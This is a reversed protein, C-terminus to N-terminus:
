SQKPLGSLLDEVAKPDPPKVLHHNIGAEATRRRDEKQGWGTLAALVVKELGPQQRMRRAVEYGDMGPMGIDLFVLDPSYTRTMELAAMGSYVVRVEHGQLRLLMALSNAADENDDVVLLRHGTPSAPEHAQQGTERGRDQEVGQASIPLRVVFESGKGLGKSRAEVTGNHMEVLNKVLTLGIGLGGQAKTSAHDVQVFLEFIRPLMAPAIGIGDDRVQLVALDGNREATLWIRGGPETYKAANTLLNGVVQALRVPDADIPLSEPPLRVSLQHGQADVLPQLTEVARAVVTALEVREKRLEIKGRMVRSVDLLDDVLRVLHHVQREMMDRSREVTQADVRPMKLIQLSNRIPALPNRLEHALTALFEDKRRDTDRLAQYLQTNEIAISARHALDMALALDAETYRRGSEATAFTLVGLSNGSVVLPVCIYSKLGLSRILRLHREDRAEQVLMDDTIESVIEPKGTRLVAIAGGPAQPDPPYDRMLEHALNIKDADQHAVALRRLSGDDNVLDVASWDAFYPVALNAVKQLTSEYDVVGALAASAEALYRSSEEARKQEHIDTGTGFWRAVRGSGDQVAVTRILHWRYSQTRRELLRIEMEFPAGSRLSAAWRESAPQADDPHLIQDWGEKGVTERVGTFEHWRRNLYDINGDPRATWVIQPMADALQRFRQESDRLSEEMKKIESIDTNTGFWYLVRGEETRLPNVRTLFPRFKEDAGKLPFVMDFPQGSAISGKWQELVNPLVEPDHVSQWGWGEMQEPTTGTYEYWRRNYWFIHGDPRAMWALQPITDALLRLKQESERLAAEAQRRQSVDRFYVSLGESSPYAHVEYWRNHPPYFTEFRVTVNEAVARRYNRELETELTDPYEEWHNKGLLDDRSRGLLVEAERNVYTFRWDRDLACFADTISELIVRNRQEQARVKAEASKRETVDRTFCRTHVFQGNKWLVSSDILVDKISGDKCRLRAPYENLKEGAQLRKLIDCIVDEDAHFDTIARGVYEERSYGLLDLEAQNVRLIVGDPGVWHLGVTANEFFDALEKESQQVQEEATKREIFQGINGAVTAMMELLDADPERIRKTFFEIVGLTQDSVVIPCAFPRHLDYKTASALRPFNTDQAVDLIWAPKGSAWVRGPLGEGRGFKRSCSATEFETVQAGPRHWSQRCALESGEDSLIWVFGVDWALSECVARLVGSAGGEVSTAESLVRTVALRANRYQEARKQETIDRLYATFLPPGGSPIPTIALEVPFETGDARVAFMEIRQNLVPGEGTALYHAMGRQHAARFRAPIILDAMNQGIVDARAYGFTREAAPNFELVLGHQDCTIICDLASTLIAAKRAESERLEKEGRRQETVDRFILIVGSASGTADRIPAASDDIPRETGDRTVLVTHNGLGVVRDDRLIKAVPNEVPQRTQEHLIRFVTELPQGQAAEETWGTLDQAVANLFTVRGETDTAIVADGISALTVRLWERETHLLASQKRLAEESRKHQLVVAAQNAAVGLLLHDTPGPFDPQRSAAVLVGCNGEYGIPLVALSVTGEGIPNAVVPSPGFKGEQLLLGLAKSIEQSRAPPELTQSARLAEHVRGETIGNVRVHVFDAHPLSRLLVEALSDAIAQPETRGWAASLVSLAALERVCRRLHQTEDTLPAM